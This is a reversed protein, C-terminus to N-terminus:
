PAIEQLFQMWNRSSIADPSNCSPFFYASRPFNCSIPGLVKRFKFSCDKTIDNLDVDLIHEEFTMTHLCLRKRCFNKKRKKKKKRAKELSVKKLTSTLIQSYMKKKRKKLNFSPVNNKSLSCNRSSVAGPFHM